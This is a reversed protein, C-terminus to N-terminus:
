LYYSIILLYSKCILLEYHIDKSLQLATRVDMSKGCRRWSKLVDEQLPTNWCALFINRKSAGAPTNDDHALDAWALRFGELV